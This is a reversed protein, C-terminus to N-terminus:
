VVSSHILYKSLNKNFKPFPTGFVLAFVLGLFLATPASIVEVGWLMKFPILMLVLLVWYLPKGLSTLSYNGSNAM